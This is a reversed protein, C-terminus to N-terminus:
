RHFKGCLRVQGLHVGAGFVPVEPADAKVPELTIENDDSGPMQTEGAPSAFDVKFTPNMGTKRALGAEILNVNSGTDLLFRYPGHGNVFVGDVIPRGERVQIRVGGFLSGTSIILSYILIQILGKNQM